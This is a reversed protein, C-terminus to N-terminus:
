NSSTRATACKPPAKSCSSRPRTAQRPFERRGPDGQLRGHLLDMGDRSEHRLAAVAGKRSARRATDRDRMEGASASRTSGHESARAAVRALLDDPLSIMVEAMLQTHGTNGVRPLPACADAAVTTPYARRRVSVGRGIVHDVLHERSGPPAQIFRHDRRCVALRGRAPLFREVVGNGPLRATARRWSASGVRARRPPGSLVAAM